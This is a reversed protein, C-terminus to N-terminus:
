LCTQDTKYSKRGTKKKPQKDKPKSSSEDLVVCGYAAFSREICFFFFFMNSKKAKFEPMTAQSFLRGEESGARTAYFAVRAPFSSPRSNECAVPM